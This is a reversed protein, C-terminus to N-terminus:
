EPRDVSELDSWVYGRIASKSTYWPNRWSEKYSLVGLVAAAKNFFGKRDAECDMVLCYLMGNIEDQTIDGAQSLTEATKRGYSVNEWFETGMIRHVVADIFSDNGRFTHDDGHLSGM